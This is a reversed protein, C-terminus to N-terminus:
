LRIPANPSEERQPLCLLRASLEAAMAADIVGRRELKDIQEVICDAADEGLELFPALHELLDTLNFRM